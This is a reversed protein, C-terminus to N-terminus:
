QELQEKLSEAINVMNYVHENSQDKLTIALNLYTIDSTNLFSEVADVYAEEDDIFEIIEDHLPQVIETPELQRYAEIVIDLIFM